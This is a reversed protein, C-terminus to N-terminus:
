AAHDDALLFAPVAMLQEAGPKPKEIETEAVNLAAAVAPAGIKQYHRLLRDQAQAESRKCVLERAKSKWM